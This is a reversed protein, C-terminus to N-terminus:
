YDKNLSHLAPPPAGFMGRTAGVNRHSLNSSIVAKSNNVTTNKAVSMATNVSGGKQSAMEKDVSKMYEVLSLEIRKLATVIPQSDITVNQIVPEPAAAVTEPEALKEADREAAVPGSESLKEADREAAVPGSESLKEADREAKNAEREAIDEADRENRKKEIVAKTEAHKADKAAMAQDIAAIDDDFDGRFGPIKNLLSYIGKKLLLPFKEFWNFVAMFSDTIADAFNFSDLNDAFDEFGLKRAAWSVIDKILNPIFGIITGFMTSIGAKLGELVSGTEDFIAVGAMVGDYIGKIAIGIAAAAAVFPAAMVAFPAVTSMIFSGLTTFATALASGVTALMPMISTSFVGIVKPIITKVFFSVLGLTFKPAILALAAVAGMSLNGVVDEFFSSFVNKITGWPDEDWTGFGDIIKGIFTAIGGGLKKVGDFMWMIVDEIKQFFDSINNAVKRAQEEGEVFGFAELIGTIGAAFIDKFELPGEFWEAAKKIGEMFGQLATFAGILVLIKKGWDLLTDFFGQVAKVPALDKFGDVLGKGFTTFKEGLGKAYELSKTYYVANEGLLREVWPPTTNPDKAVTSEEEQMSFFDQMKEFPSRLAKLEENNKQFMDENINVNTSKKEISDSLKELDTKMQARQKDLQGALTENGSSVADDYASSLYGFEKQLKEQSEKEEALQSQLKTNTEMLEEKIQKLLKKEESM